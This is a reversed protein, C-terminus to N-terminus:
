KVALRGTEPDVRLSLEGRLLRLLDKGLLEGRWGALVDHPEAGDRPEDDGRLADGRLHAKALRTLDATTALTEAAIGVEEARQALLARLLEVAPAPDPGARRKDLPPLEAEPLDLAKKIAAVLEDGHRRSESPHLGRVKELESPRTPARRAIDVLTPDKVIWSPRLDRARATRERWAALERLVALGRRDLGRRNKVERWRDADPVPEYTAPDLLPAMEEDAWARRGAEELRAVLAHHVDLLPIVDSLAYEVQEPRLPRKTWESWQEVKDIRRSLLQEVLAAYGVQHGFGLLSAARQTDFVPGPPAGLLEHLLELDTRGAHFVKLRAPEALLDAVPRVDVGLPDIAVAHVQGDPGRGAVQVLALVPRYTKEWVFETDVALCTAARLPALAPLLDDPRDILRPDPM